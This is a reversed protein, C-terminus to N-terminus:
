TSIFRATVSGGALRRHSSPKFPTTLIDWNRAIIKEPLFITDVIIRRDPSVKQNCQRVSPAATTAAATFNNGTSAPSHCLAPAHGFFIRQDTWQNV